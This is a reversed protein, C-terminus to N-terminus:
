INQLLNWPLHFFLKNAPESQKDANDKNYVTLLGVTKLRTNPSPIRDSLFRKSHTLASHISFSVCKQPTKPEFGSM